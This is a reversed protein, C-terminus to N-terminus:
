PRRSRATPCAARRAGSAARRAGPARACGSTTSRSSDRHLRSREAAVPQLERRAALVGRVELRRVPDERPPLVTASAAASAGRRTARRWGPPELREDRQAAIALRQVARSGTATGPRRWRPCRRRRRRGSHSAPAARARLPPTRRPERVRDAPEASSSRLASGAQGSALGARRRAPPRRSRRGARRAAAAGRYGSPGDPDNTRWSRRKARRSARSPTRKSHTGGARTSSGSSTARNSRCARPRASRAASENPAAILEVEM